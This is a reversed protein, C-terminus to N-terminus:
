NKLTDKQNSNRKRDNPLIMKPDKKEKKPPLNNGQNQVPATKRLEDQDPIDEIQLTDLITEIEEKSLMLEKKAKALSDLTKMEQLLQKPILFANTMEDELPKRNVDITDNLYKEIMLGAIPAAWRGGFGANECIVMIAIKPNERPAFAAFFSHDDLKKGKYFNEATGTKGCVSIGPVQAGRGTGRDVVGQMGNHVEEFVADPIELPFHKKGYKDLLNFKDGGEISDVIHPTIFWGENALYAMENAVQLPTTLVEGQGISVSRFTCFNWHGAGYIKNYTRPTPILGSRENPLDVELRNGLGFANM